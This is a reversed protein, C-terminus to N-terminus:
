VGSEFAEDLFAHLEKIHLAVNGVAPAASSPRGAYSLSLKKGIIAQMNHQSSYWAGQNM